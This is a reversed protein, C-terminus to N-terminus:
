VIDTEVATVKNDAPPAREAVKPEPTVPCILTIAHITAVALGTIVTVVVSPDIDVIVNSATPSVAVNIHVPAAHVANDVDVDAALIAVM